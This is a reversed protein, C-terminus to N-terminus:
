SSARRHCHSNRGASTMENREFYHERKSAEQQDLEDIKSYSWNYSRGGKESFWTFLRKIAKIYDRVERDNLTTEAVLTDILAEADDPTFEKTFEGKQEWKWRYAKEIKYHTTKVTDQAYGDGKFPNKGCRHLWRMFDEKFGAYEDTYLPPFRELAEKTPQSVPTHQLTTDATDQDFM